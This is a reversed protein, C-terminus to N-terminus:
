AGISAEDPFVGERVMMEAKRRALMGFLFWSEQDSLGPVPSGAVEGSSLSISLCGSNMKEAGYLYKVHTKTEEVKWLRVHRGM